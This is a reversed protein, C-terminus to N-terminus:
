SSVIHIYIYIYTNMDTHTSPGAKVTGLVKDFSLFHVFACKSLEYRM